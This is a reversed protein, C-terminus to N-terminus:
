RFPEKQASCQVASLQHTPYLNSTTVTRTQLLRHRDKAARTFWNAAQMWTLLIQQLSFEKQSLIVPQCSPQPQFPGRSTRKGLWAQQWSCTWIAKPDRLISVGCLGRAVLALARDGEHRSVTEQHQSLVNQGERGVAQPAPSEPM